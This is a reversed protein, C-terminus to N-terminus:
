SQNLCFFPVRYGRQLPYAHKIDDRSATRDVGLVECYDGKTETVM